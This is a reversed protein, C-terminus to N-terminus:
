QPETRYAEWDVEYDEPLLIYVKEFRGMPDDISDHLEHLRAGQVQLPAKCRYATIRGFGLSNFRMVGDYKQVDTLKMAAELTPPTKWLEPVLVLYPHTEVGFALAAYRRFKQMMVM